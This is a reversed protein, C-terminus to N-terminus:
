TITFGSGSVFAQAISGPGPWENKKIRNFEKDKM